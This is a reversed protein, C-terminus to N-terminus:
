RKPEAPLTMAGPKCYRSAHAVSRVKTLSKSETPPVQIERICRTVSFSRLLNQNLTWVQEQLASHRPPSRARRCYLVSGDMLVVFQCLAPIHQCLRAPPALTGHQWCGRCAYERRGFVKRDPQASHRCQHASQMQGELANKAQFHAAMTRVQDRNDSWTRRQPTIQMSQEAGPTDCRRTTSGVGFLSSGSCRDSM